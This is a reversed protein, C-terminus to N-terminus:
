DICRATPRNHHQLARFRGWAPLNSQRVRTRLLKRASPIITENHLTEMIEIPFVFQNIRNHAILRIFLVNLFYRLKKKGPYTLICFNKWWNLLISLILLVEFMSCIGDFRIPVEECFGLNVNKWCELEDEGQTCRLESWWFEHVYETSKGPPM